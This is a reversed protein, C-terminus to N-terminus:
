LIRITNVLRKQDTITSRMINETASMNTVTAMAVYRVCLDVIWPWALHTATVIPTHRPDTTPRAMMSRIYLSALLPVIFM